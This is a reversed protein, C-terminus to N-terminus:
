NRSYSRVGSELEVPDIATVDDAAGSDPEPKAPTESHATLTM